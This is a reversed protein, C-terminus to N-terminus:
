SQFNQCSIKYFITMTGNYGQTHEGTVFVTWKKHFPHFRETHLLYLIRYSWLNKRLFQRTNQLEPTHYSSVLVYARPETNNKANFIVTNATLLYLTSLHTAIKSSTIVYAPPQNLNKYPWIILPLVLIALQTSFEYCQTKKISNMVNPQFVTSVHFNHQQLMMETWGFM